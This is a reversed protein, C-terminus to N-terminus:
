VKPNEKKFSNNISNVCLFGPKSDRKKYCIFGSIISIYKINQSTFTIM